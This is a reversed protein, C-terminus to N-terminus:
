TVIGADKIRHQHAPFHTLERLPHVGVQVCTNGVSRLCDRCPVKNAKARTDDFWAQNAASRRPRSYSGGTAEARQDAWFQDDSTDLEVPGGWPDENSM